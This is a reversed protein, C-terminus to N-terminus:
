KELKAQAILKNIEDLIYKKLANFEKKLDDMLIIQNYFNAQKIESEAIKLRRGIDEQGNMNREILRQRLIDLSPPMLFITRLPYKESYSEIVQRTGDV